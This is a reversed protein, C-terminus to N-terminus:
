LQGISTIERSLSTLLHCPPNTHFVLISFQPCRDGSVGCEQRNIYYSINLEQLSCLIFCKNCGPTTYLKQNSCSLFPPPTDSQLLVWYKKQMSKPLRGERMTDYSNVSSIHTHLNPSLYMVYAFCIQPISAM